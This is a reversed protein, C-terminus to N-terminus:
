GKWVIPGDPTFELMSAFKGDEALGKYAATKRFGRAVLAAVADKRTFGKAGYALAEAMDERTVKRAPLPASPKLALPADEDIKSEAKPEKEDGSLLWLLGVGVIVGLIAIPPAIVAAPALTTLLPVSDQPKM